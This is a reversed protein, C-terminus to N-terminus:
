EPTEMLRAVAELIEDTKMRWNGVEKSVSQWIEGHRPEAQICREKVEAQEAENGHILEFKYLYAWADGFLPDVKVARQFWDRTQASPKGEMWGCRGLSLMVHPDHECNRLADVSKARRGHRSENLIAEAWLRGSKKCEQLARALNAQALARNGARLDIRVHELWLLESRPNKVKAMDLTSRAKSV